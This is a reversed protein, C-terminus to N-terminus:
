RLWIINLTDILVYSQYFYSDSPHRIIQSMIFYNDHARFDLHTVYFGYWLKVPIGYRRHGRQENYTYIFTHM